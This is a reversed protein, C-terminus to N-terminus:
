SHHSGAGCRYGLAARRAIFRHESNAIVLPRKLHKIDSLRLVTEQLMTRDSALPLLQKPFHARPMPWLRTVAGGSLIVPYINQTRM